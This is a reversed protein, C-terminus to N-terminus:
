RGDLTDSNDLIRVATRNIISAAHAFSHFRHPRWHPSPTRFTCFLLLPFINETLSFRLRIDFDIDPIRSSEL